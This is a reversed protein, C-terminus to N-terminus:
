FGAQVGSAYPLRSQSFTSLIHGVFLPFSFFNQLMCLIAYFLDLLFDVM